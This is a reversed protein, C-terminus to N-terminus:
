TLEAETYHVTVIRGSVQRRATVFSDIDPLFAPTTDKLHLDQLAPLTTRGGLGGEDSVFASVITPVLTGTLELRRVSTFPGFLETWRAPDTTAEESHDAAVDLREASSALPSLQRCIHALLSLQRVVEHCSVQLRFTAGALSPSDDFHHTLTFGHDLLWVSTRYPSSNLRETRAIFQSLQPIELTFQQQQQGFLTINFREVFPADFRKVLDELYDIDGRFSFERLAPLVARNPPSPRPSGPGQLPISSLFCIELLALQPTWYLGTVLAEPSFYGTNPIDDLRLSVLDSASLLLWPLTPFATGNLDIHRLRPTSGGLFGSPLVISWLMDRTGLQLHQLVPFPKQMLPALKELLPRTITLNIESIRDPHELAALVNHEDTPALPHYLVLRPYWISIPLPPWCDLTKRIPKKYTYVLRLDLRRPSAFVVFRWRRCVHALRHWEWPEFLSYDLAALRHYDFIDLLVDEPLMAITIPQDDKGPLRVALEACRGLITVTYFGGRQSSSVNAQDGHRPSVNRGARQGLFIEDWM